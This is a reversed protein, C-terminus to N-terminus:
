RPYTNRVRIVYTQRVWDKSNYPSRIGYKGVIVMGRAIQANKIKLNKIKTSDIRVKADLNTNVVEEVLDDPWCIQKAREDAEIKDTFFEYRKLDWFTAPTDRVPEPNRPFKNEGHHALSTVLYIHKPASMHLWNIPEPLSM